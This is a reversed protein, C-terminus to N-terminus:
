TPALLDRRSAPDTGNWIAIDHDIVGDFRTLRAESAV